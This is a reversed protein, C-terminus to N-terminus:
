LLIINNEFVFEPSAPFVNYIDSLSSWNKKYVNTDFVCTNMKNLITYIRRPIYVKTKVNHSYITITFSNDQSQEYVNTKFDDPNM